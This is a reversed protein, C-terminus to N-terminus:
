HVGRNDGVNTGMQEMKGYVCLIKLIVIDIGNSTSFKSLFIWIKKTTGKGGSIYAM